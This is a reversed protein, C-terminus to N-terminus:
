GEEVEVEVNLLASDEVPASRRDFILAYYRQFAEMLENSTQTTHFRFKNANVALTKDGYKYEKPLPWINPADMCSAIVLIAAVVILSRMRERSLIVFRM